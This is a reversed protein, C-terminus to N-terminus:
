NYTSLIAEFNARNHSSYSLIGMLASGLDTHYEVLSSLQAFVNDATTKKKSYNGLMGALVDINNFINLINVNHLSCVDICYDIQEKLSHYDTLEEISDASTAM